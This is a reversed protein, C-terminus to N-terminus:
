GLIGMQFVNDFGDGCMDTRGHVTAPNVPHSGFLYLREVSSQGIISGPLRGASGLNEGELIIGLSSHFRYIGKLGLNGVKEHAALKNSKGLGCCRCNVYRGVLDTSYRIM